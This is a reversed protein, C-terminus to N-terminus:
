AAEQDSKKENANLRTAPEGGEREVVASTAGTLRQLDGADPKGEAAQEKNVRRSESKEESKDPKGDAPRAQAAEVPASKEKTSLDADSPKTNKSEPKKEGEDSAETQKNGVLAAVSDAHSAGKRPPEEHLEPKKGLKIEKEPHEPSLLHDIRV